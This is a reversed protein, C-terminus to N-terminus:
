NENPRESLMHFQKVVVVNSRIKSVLDGELNSAPVLISESTHGVPQLNPVFAV